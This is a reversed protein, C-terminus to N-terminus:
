KLSVRVSAGAAPLSFKATAYSPPGMKGVANNSFAYDETPIGLINKDMKGNSNADHYVAFAYEGEPLDKIVVTTGDAAAPAGGSQAPQRLFSGESNFVAVMIVGGAAKAEDVRITLDAAGALNITLLAAAGAITTTLSNM